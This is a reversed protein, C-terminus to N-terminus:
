SDLLQNDLLHEAHHVYDIFAKLALDDAAPTNFAFYTNRMLPTNDPYILASQYLHQLEKEINFFIITYGFGNRVMELCTEVDTVSMGIKQPVNFNASWWSNVISNSLESRNHSIFPISPLDELTVPRYYVLFGPQKMFLFSNKCSLSECNIFGAQITHRSLLEPIQSSTKVLLKVSFQPYLEHFNKLLRPMLFRSFSSPASVTISSKQALNMQNIHQYIEEQFSAYKVAQTGLYEGQPTLHIGRNTRIAITCQFEEEINRLRKSLAPQSIFLIQAAQTMNQHLYLAQLVQWDEKKM